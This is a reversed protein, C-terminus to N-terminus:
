EKVMRQTHSSQGDRVSVLYIGKPLAEINAVVQFVRGGKELSFQQYVKGFTDTITVQAQGGSSDGQYRLTVSHTAPNPWLALEPAVPGPAQGRVFRLVFRDQRASVVQFHYAGGRLNHTTNAEKDDLWIGVDDPFYLATDIRISHRGREGARVFLPVQAGEFDLPLGNIALPEGAVQTFLNPFPASNFFAKRADYAPDHGGTAGNRFYVIAQDTLGRARSTFDLRVLGAFTNLKEAEEERFFRPKAYVDPRMDNTFSFPGTQRARVFFGQGSQVKDADPGTNTGLGGTGTTYTGWTGAFRATATRRWVTNEALLGSNTALLNDLDLLSPYPNGLLNWGSSPGSGKTVNISYSRNNPIGRWQITRGVPLNVCYGRALEMNSGPAPCRWGAQPAAGGEFVQNNGEVYQFFNPFNGLVYFPNQWYYPNATNDLRLFPMETAPSNAFQAIPVGVAVNANNALPSAFYNYGLANAGAARSPVYNDVHREAWISTLNVGDASLVEHEGNNRNIIMATYNPTSRLYLNAPLGFDGQELDLVRKIFITGGQESRLSPQIIGNQVPSGGFNVVGYRPSVPSSNPNRNILNNFTISGNHILQGTFNRVDLGPEPVGSVNNVRVKYNQCENEFIVTGGSTPSNAEGGPDFASGSTPLKMFTRRITLTSQDEMILRGSVFYLNHAFVSAGSPIGVTREGVTPNEITVNHANDPIQLIPNSLIANTALDHTQWPSWTAPSTWSGDQVAFRMCEVAGIDSVCTRLNGFYDENVEDNTITPIYPEFPYYINRGGDTAPSMPVPYVVRYLQPDKAYICQPDFTSAGASSQLISINSEQFLSYLFAGSTTGSPPNEFYLSRNTNSSGLDDINNWFLTNVVRLNTTTFRDAAYIGAGQGSTGNSSVTTNNIITLHRLKAMAEDVDNAEVNPDDIRRNLLALGGGRYATNGPLAESNSFICNTAILKPYNTFVGGGYGSVSDPASGPKRNASCRVFWHDRMFWNQGATRPGEIYMGGGNEAECEEYYAASTAKQIVQSIGSRLSGAMVIAAGVYIGGGHRGARNTFALIDSRNDSYSAHHLYYAGGDRDALNDRFEQKNGSRTNLWITVRSSDSYIGGGNNAARNNAIFVDNLFIYSRKAFIGGGNNENVGSGNANGDRIVFGDLLTIAPTVSPSYNGHETTQQAAEVDIASVVHYSNDSFDGPVDLDGSLISVGMGSASAPPGPAYAYVIPGRRDPLAVRNTDSAENGRFGGYYRVGAKLVFSAARNTGSTPKYIGEKVFVSDGAVADNFAQQLDTYADTWSDGSGSGTASPDVHIRRQANTTGALSLLCFFVPIFNKLLPKSLFSFM